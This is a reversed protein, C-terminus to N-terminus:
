CGRKGGAPKGGGKSGGAPKMVPKPKPSAGTMGKNM